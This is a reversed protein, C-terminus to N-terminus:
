TELYDALTKHDIVEVIATRVEEMASRLPCTTEDPCTCSSYAIRSVCGVPAITGDLARIVEGLSISSAPRALFYGGKTGTSAEVLDAHRLQLFLQELYKFPIANETAIKKLSLPGQVSQKAMYFLARLGYQSRTSLNM